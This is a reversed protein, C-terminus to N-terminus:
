QFQVLTKQGEINDTEDLLEFGTLNNLDISYMMESRNLVWVPGKCGVGEGRITDGAMPHLPVPTIQIDVDFYHPKIVDGISGFVKLAKEWVTLDPPEGLGKIKAATSVRDPLLESLRHEIVRAILGSEARAIEVGLDAGQEMLRTKLRESKTVGVKLHSPSFLAIYVSYPENCDPKGKM